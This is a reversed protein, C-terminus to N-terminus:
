YIYFDNSIVIDDKPVLNKLNASRADFKTDCQPCQSSVPEICIPLCFPTSKPLKSFHLTNSSYKLLEEKLNKNHKFIYSGEITKQKMGSLKDMLRYPEVYVGFAQHVIEAIHKMRDPLLSPLANDVCNAFDLMSLSFPPDLALNVFTKVDDQNLVSLDTNM